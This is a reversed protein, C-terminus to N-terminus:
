AVSGENRMRGFFESTKEQSTKGKSDEHKDLREKKIGTLQNKRTEYSAARPRQLLPVHDDLRGGGSTASYANGKSSLRVPRLGLREFVRQAVDKWLVMGGVAVPAPQSFLTAETLSSAPLKEGERARKSDNCLEVPVGVMKRKKNGKKQKGLATLSQEWAEVDGDRVSLGELYRLTNKVRAAALFHEEWLAVIDDMVFLREEYHGTLTWLVSPQYQFTLCDFGSEHLVLPLDPSMSYEPRSPLTDIDLLKSIIDPSEKREGVLFLLAMICRVMHWLFAVGRIELFYVAENDGGEDSGGRGSPDQFPKIQAYFIERRFNSVNAMDMKCINRFDHDGVLLLAGRQMATIDLDKRTFFYRYTRHTASFRASFDPTVETWGIVRIEDPLN